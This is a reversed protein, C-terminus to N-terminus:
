IRHYVYLPIEFAAEEMTNMSMDASRNAQTNVGRRYKDKSLIKLVKLRAEIASDLFM